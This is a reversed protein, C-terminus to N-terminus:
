LGCCTSSRRLLCLLLRLQTVQYEKDQYNPTNNLVRNAEIIAAEESVINELIPILVSCNLKQKLICASLHVYQNKSQM